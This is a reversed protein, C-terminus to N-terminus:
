KAAPEGHTRRQSPDEHFDHSRDRPSRSMAGATRWLLLGAAGAVVFWFDAFLGLGPQAGSLVDWVLAPVGRVLALLSGVLTARLLVGMVRRSIDGRALGAAVGAAAFMLGGAVLDYTLFIPRESIPPSSEPM